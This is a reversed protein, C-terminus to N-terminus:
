LLGSGVRDRALRICEVTKWGMEKLGREYYEGMKEQTKLASKSEPNTFLTKYVNTLGGIGALISRWGGWGGENLRGLVIQYL